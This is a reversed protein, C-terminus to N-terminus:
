QIRPQIYDEAQKKVSAHSMKVDPVAGFMEDIVKKAGVRVSNLDRIMLAREGIKALDLKEKACPDDPNSARISAELVWIKANIEMLTLLSNLFHPLKKIQEAEVLLSLYEVEYLKEERQIGENLAEKNDAALVRNLKAKMRLIVYRDCIEGPSMKM